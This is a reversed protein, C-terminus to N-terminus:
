GRVLNRLFFRVPLRQWFEPMQRVATELPRQGSLVFSVLFSDSVCFNLLIRLEQLLDPRHSLMQGEDVIVLTAPHLNWAKKKLVRSQETQISSIQLEQDHDASRGM